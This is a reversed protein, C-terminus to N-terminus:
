LRQMSLSLARLGMWDRNRGPHPCNQEGWDQANEFCTGNKGKLVTEQTDLSVGKNDNGGFDGSNRFDAMSIDTRYSSISM